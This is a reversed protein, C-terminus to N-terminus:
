AAPEHNDDLGFLALTKLCQHKHHRSSDPTIRQGPLNLGYKLGQHDGDLVWRCLISLKREMAMTEPLQYWDFWIDDGVQLHFHKTYLQGTRAIAKWALHMPADGKQYERIGAFDDYGNQEITHLGSQQGLRNFQPPHDDPKPYVLCQSELKLWSWAHFLGLPFETYVKIRSLSLRGRQQTTVPIEVRSDPQDQTLHGSDIDGTPGQFQLNYYALGRPSSLKIPFLATQGAFVPRASMISLQLHNLNQHTHIMGLFSISGLLFCLMFGLSNEYNIAGALIVLIIIFITIGNRTPLIYLNRRDITTQQSGTEIRKDAWREIQHALFGPILPLGSAM